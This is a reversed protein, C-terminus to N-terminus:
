GIRKVQAISPPEALLEQAAGLAEVMHPAGMHQQLAQASEWNEYFYFLGPQDVAEHLDYNVNGDEKRTPELLSGLATRLQDESGPKARLSAIVTLLNPNNDTPTTM